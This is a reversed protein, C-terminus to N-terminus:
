ENDNGEKKIYTIHGWGNLGIIHTGSRWEPNNIEYGVSGDVQTKFWNGDNFTVEYRPNGNRSNSLRECSVVSGVLVERAKSQKPM